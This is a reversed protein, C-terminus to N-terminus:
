RGRRLSRLVLFALALSVLGGALALVEPRPKGDPGTLSEKTSEKYDHASEKVRSKVDFKAALEDVTEALQERTREVEERLDEPNQSETM